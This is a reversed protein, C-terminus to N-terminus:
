KNRGKFLLVIREVIESILLGGLLSMVTIGLFILIGM